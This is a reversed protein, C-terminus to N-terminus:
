NEAAIDLLEKMARTLYKNKKYYFNVERWTLSSDIKFFAMQNDPRVKKVLMDSVLTIGLGQCAINFATAQQDLELMVHPSIGAEKCIEDFRARTDNGSRLFLFPADKIFHLPLALTESKLHADSLIDATSLRYPAFCDQRVLGLPATLVLNERYYFHRTYVSDNLDANEVIVDLEGTFLQKELAARDAEVLSIVVSPHRMKFTAVLPPLMFSTFFHSSGVTLNGIKLNNWEHLFNDFNRQIDLMQVVAHIYEKGCDTLRVPTTSRDFLQCGAKEETRKVSASLSPQSIHLKEAAKSFSKQRYVEYIYEMNSFM